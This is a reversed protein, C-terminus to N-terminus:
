SYYYKVINSNRSYKQDFLHLKTLMLSKFFLFFKKKKKFKVLDMHEFVFIAM